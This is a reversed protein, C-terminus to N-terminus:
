RRIINLLCEKFKHLWSHIVVWFPLPEPTPIPPTPTPLPLPRGTLQQYVVALKQSDIGDLFAYSSFHEPWIMVWAEDVENQWFLNTFETERAWTIFKVSDADYGGSIVSHGGVSPSNAVYDWAINQDFESENISLVNIGTWVYGFIALAARIENPDAHNVKAFAIANSNKQLYELCTQIDMGEDQNPFNPNQTKYLELVQDLTPYEKGKTM